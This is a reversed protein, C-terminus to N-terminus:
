FFLYTLAFVAIAIAAVIHVPVGSSKQQLQSQAGRVVPAGGQAVLQARLRLVETELEQPSAASVPKAGAPVSPLPANPSGVQNNLQAISIPPEAGAGGRSAVGGYQAGAGAGMAGGAMAGAGLAGAGGASEPLEAEEPVTASSPPLFACRIKHEFIAEKEREQLAWLEAIPLMEKDASIPASQILFKDRCKANAPPEEKLPQLLVQIEVREGPEIRGSNPRVCYQKPATTKVKFAVPQANSNTVVLSRKVVQTLPRSFGIQAHPSIEISM